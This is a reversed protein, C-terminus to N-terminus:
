PKPNVNWDRHERGNSKEVATAVYDSYVYLGM